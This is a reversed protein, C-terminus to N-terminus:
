GGAVARECGRDGPAIARYQVTRTRTFIIIPDIMMLVPQSEGVIGCKPAGMIEVRVRVHMCRMCAGRPVTPHQADGASYGAGRQRLFSALMEQALSEGGRQRAARDAPHTMALRADAPAVQGFIAGWGDDISRPACVHIATTTHRTCGGPGRVMGVSGFSSVLACRLRQSACRRLVPSDRPDPHRPASMVQTWLAAFPRAEIDARSRLGRFVGSQAWEWWEVAKSTCWRRVSRDRAYSAMHGTEQHSLLRAIPGHPGRHLEDLVDVAEGIRTTLISECCCRHSSDTAEASGTGQRSQQTQGRVDQLTAELDRLGENVFALHSGHATPHGLQSPEYLYLVVFPRHHQQQQQQQRQCGAHHSLIAAPAALAHGPLLVASLPGHDGLRVDKKLWVVDM